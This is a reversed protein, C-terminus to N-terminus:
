GDKALEAEIPGTIEPSLPETRSGWTAVVRGDRGLLVKNFNWSPEFGTQERVWRYFPHAEDGRVHTIDAMPLTLGFVVACFEKVEGGSALEQRFDDSPVALVVLGDNGYREHLDQLGEYQPTYGCRSATNVVLVPQGTWASTDLEGGDINAFSFAAAMGPVALAAAAAALIRIM